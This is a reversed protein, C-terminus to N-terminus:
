AARRDGHHGLDLRLTVVLVAAVGSVGIAIMPGGLLTSLMFGLLATLLVAALVVERRPRSGDSDLVLAPILLTCAAALALVSALPGVPSVLPNLLIGIAFVAACAAVGSFLENERQRAGPKSMQFVLRAANAVTFFVLLGIMDLTRDRMGPISALFLGIAICALTLSM